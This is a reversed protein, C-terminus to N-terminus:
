RTVGRPKRGGHEQVWEFQAQARDLWKRLDKRRYRVQGGIKVQGLREGSKVLRDLTSRSVRLYACVESPTALTDPDLQVLREQEGQRISKRGKKRRTM